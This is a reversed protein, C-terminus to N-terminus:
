RGPNGRRVPGARLEVGSRLEEFRKAVSPSLSSPPWYVAIGDLLSPDALAVAIVDDFDSTLQVAVSLPQNLREASTGVLAQLSKAGFRGVSELREQDLLTIEIWPGDEDVRFKVKAKKQTKVRTEVKASTQRLSTAEDDPAM